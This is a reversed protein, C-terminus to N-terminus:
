FATKNTERTHKRIEMLFSLGACILIDYEKKERSVWVGSEPRRAEYM